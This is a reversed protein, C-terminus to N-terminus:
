VRRKEEVTTLDIDDIANGCSLRTHWVMSVRPCDPEIIVTHLKARHEVPPRKTYAGFHTQFGFYPDPLRFGLRGGPTLGVLMVDVGSPRLHPEVQQDVPACMNIRPDYDLPLLPKQSKIWAADYTGQYRRRPEWYSCLPGFGPAADKRVGGDPFEINAVSQGLLSSAKVAVGTGVPNPFFMRQRQPNPDAQDFGGHAREYVIPMQVFPAPESAVPLGAINREYVRDGFVTLSKQITGVRVGVNMKACPKGEPAHASGLVLIDTGPKEDVLDAEYRLSSTGPDGFYEPMVLPEPQEDAIETSGDPLISFTAKVAVVWHRAGNPDIVATSGAAFPTMNGVTWM